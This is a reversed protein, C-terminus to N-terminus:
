NFPIRIGFLHMRISLVTNSHMLLCESASSFSRPQQPPPYGSAHLFCESAQFGIRISLLANPYQLSQQVSPIRIGFLTDSYENLSDLYQLITDPHRCSSSCSCCSQVSNFSLKGILFQIYHKSILRILMIIHNLFSYWSDCRILCSIACSITFGFSSYRLYRSTPLLM